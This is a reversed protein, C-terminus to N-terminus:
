RGFWRTLGVAFLFFTAIGSLVCIAGLFVAVVGSVTGNLVPVGCAIWLITSGLLAVLIYARTKAEDSWDFTESEPEPMRSALAKQSLPQLHEQEPSM